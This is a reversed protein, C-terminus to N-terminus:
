IPSRCLAPTCLRLRCTAPALLVRVHPWKRDRAQTIGPFLIVWSHPVAPLSTSRCTTNIAEGSSWAFNADSLGGTPALAWDLPFPHLLSPRPFAPVGSVQLYLLALPNTEASRFLGASLIPRSKPVWRQALPLPPPPSPPFFFLLFTWPSFSFPTYREHDNGPTKTQYSPPTM